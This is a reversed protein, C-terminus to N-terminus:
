KIKEITIKFRVGTKSPLVECAKFEKVKIGKEFLLYNNIDQLDWHRIAFADYITVVDKGNNSKGTITIKPVSNRSFLAVEFTSTGTTIFSKSEAEKMCKKAFKKMDEKRREQPGLIVSKAVKERAAAENQPTIGAKEPCKKAVYDTMKKTLSVVMSMDMDYIYGNALKFRRFLQNEEYGCKRAEKYIDDYREQKEKDAPLDNLVMVYSIGDQAKDSISLALFSTLMNTLERSM